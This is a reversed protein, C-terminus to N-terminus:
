AVEQLQTATPQQETLEFFREELSAHDPRM